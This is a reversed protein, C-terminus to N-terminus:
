GSTIMEGLKDTSIFEVDPWQKTIRNLLSKLDSLSKDRNAPNLWGVYNVRHTSIIAPKRWRFAISIDNMCEDVWDSKENSSPEFTSNRTLYIQGYRTRKGLYHYHRRTNGEGTPEAQIKAIGLYKIGSSAAPEQLTNNFPGNTPVFFCAHYGHLQHFLSLGDSIVSGQYDLESLDKFDFAAQYSVRNQPKRPRIGYVKQQFAFLTDEEGTQLAKMWNHVNLHERGHFQPVFLHNKMGEKWLDFSGSHHPYSKLTETFPEYVYESFGNEKIKEFNPNAVVSVATFVAPASNKDKVSNLVEFLAALDNESALGDNRLYSEAGANAALIGKREFQNYADISSMRVAGWDDSELVVIKRNTRWGPLNSLNRRIQRKLQYIM